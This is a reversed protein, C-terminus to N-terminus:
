GFSAGARLGIASPDVDFATTGNEVSVRDVLVGRTGTAKLTVTRLVQQGVAATGFDIESPSSELRGVLSTLAEHSCGPFFLVALRGTVLLRRSSTRTKRM